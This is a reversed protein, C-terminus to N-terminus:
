ALPQTAHADNRSWAWVEILVILHLEPDVYARQVHPATSVM